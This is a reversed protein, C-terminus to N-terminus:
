PFPTQIVSTNAYEYRCHNLSQGNVEFCENRDDFNQRFVIERRDASCHGLAADAAHNGLTMM